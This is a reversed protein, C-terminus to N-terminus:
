WGGWFRGSRVREMCDGARPADARAATDAGEVARRPRRRLFCPRLKKVVLAWGVLLAPQCASGCGCCCCCWWWWPVPLFLLPIWGETAAAAPGWRGGGGRWDGGEARAGAAGEGENRAVQMLCDAFGAYKAEGTRSAAQMRTKVVDFPNNLVPGICAAMFGSTASQVPSLVM